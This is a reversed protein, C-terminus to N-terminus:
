ARPRIEQRVAETHEGPLPARSVERLPTESLRAWVAPYDATFGRKDDRLLGYFGRQRLHDYDLIQDATSVPALLIRSQV